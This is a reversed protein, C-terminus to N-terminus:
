DKIHFLWYRTNKDWGLDFPVHFRDATHCNVLPYGNDDFGVIVAFHDIDGKKWEYAIVDGPVLEGIASKPYKDTPKMIQEYTGKAVLRGYGSYLLFSKFKDTSVWAHSGGANKWYRWTSTMPLGGGEEADGIVQSVFNTCDGGLPTYDRYKRNYRNDNGAGWAAGAYRDAYAVAKDRNYARSKVAQVPATPSRNARHVSASLNDLSPILRIDEDFPDSYWESVVFWKDNQKRLKVVHRTGVGFHHTPIDPRDYRYSMKLTHVLSAKVTDAQKTLRVVRISSDAQVFTIGRHKAWAQVYASRHFEHKKAQRSGSSDDSYFETVLREDPQLLLKSKSAYFSDLFGVIETKEDPSQSQRATVESTTM